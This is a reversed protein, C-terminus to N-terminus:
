QDALTIDIFVEKGINDRFFAFAKPNLTSMTLQGSPTYHSWEKNEEGRSVASLAVSGVDGEPTTSNAQITVSQVFFKARVGM